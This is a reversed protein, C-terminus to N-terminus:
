IQFDRELSHSLDMLSLDHERGVVEQRLLRQTLLLMTLQEQIYGDVQMQSVHQIGAQSTKMGLMCEQLSPFHEIQMISHM